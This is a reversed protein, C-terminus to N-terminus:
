SILLEKFCLTIRSKELLTHTSTINTHMFIDPQNQQLVREMEKSHFIEVQEFYYRPKNSVRDVSKLNGAYTLMNANIVTQDIDNILHPIVASGVFGAGGTVIIKKDKKTLSTRDIRYSCRYV